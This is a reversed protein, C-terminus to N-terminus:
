QEDVLIYSAYLYQANKNFGVPQFSTTTEDDWTITITNTPKIWTWWM